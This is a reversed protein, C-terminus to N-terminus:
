KKGNTIGLRRLIEPFIHDLQRYLHDRSTTDNGVSGNEVTFDARARKEALSTQGAERRRLESEDWGRSVARAVRIEWPADVFLVVHCLRDWGGKILLAADLVVWRHTQESQAKRRTEEIRAGIRPHTVRELFQLEERQAEGFVRAALARRSIAGTNDLISESWRATLRAIVDPETLVAHGLRDADIRLGGQQELYTAVTSKGSAIGGVIGVMPLDGM